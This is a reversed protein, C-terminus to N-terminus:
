QVEKKGAARGFVLGIIIFVLKCLGISALVALISVGVLVLSMGLFTIGTMPIVFLFTFGAIVAGIAGVFLGVGTAGFAIVLAFGTIFIAFIIALAAIALPLGIPLAFLVLVAILCGHMKHKVETDPNSLNKVANDSLISNALDKPTGLKEVIDEGNAEIDAVYERYYEMANRKEEKSLPNLYGSLETLYKESNM